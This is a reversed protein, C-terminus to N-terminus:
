YLTERHPDDESQVIGGTVDWENVEYQGKIETFRPIIPAKEPEPTKVVTHEKKPIVLSPVDLLLEMQGQRIKRSNVDQPERYNGAGGAFYKNNEWLSQFHSLSQVSIPLPEKM